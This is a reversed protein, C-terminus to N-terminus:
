RWSTNHHPNTVLDGGAFSSFVESKTVLNTFMPAAVPLEIKKGPRLHSLDFCFLLSVQSHWNAKDLYLTGGSPKDDAERSNSPWLQPVWPFGMRCVWNEVFRRGVLAGLVDDQLIKGGALGSSTM